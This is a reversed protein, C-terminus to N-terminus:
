IRSPNPQQVPNTYRGPFITSPTPAGQTASAAAVSVVVSDSVASGDKGTCSVTFTTTETLTGTSVGFASTAVSGSLASAPSSAITCDSVNMGNWGVYASGGGMITAGGESGNARMVVASTGSPMGTSPSPRVPTPPPLPSGDVPRWIPTSSAFIPPRPYPFTTSGEGDRPMGPLPPCGFMFGARTAAGVFGFGTTVATGASVIGREQQFRQIAAQTAPGFYGTVKGEPYLSPDLSLAQQLKTVEGGTTTDTAGLMLPRTLQICLPPHFYGPPTSTGTGEQLMQIQARVEDVQKLLSSLKLNLDDLTTASAALPLLLSLGLIIPFIKRVM